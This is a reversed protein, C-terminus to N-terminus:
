EVLNANCTMAGRTTGKSMVDVEWVQELWSYM